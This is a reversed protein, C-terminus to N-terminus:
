DRPNGKKRTHTDDEEEESSLRSENNDSTSSNKSDSIGDFPASVDQDSGLDSEEDLPKWVCPAVISNYGHQPLKPRLESRSTVFSTIKKTFRWTCVVRPKLHFIACRGRARQARSTHPDRRQQESGDFCRM